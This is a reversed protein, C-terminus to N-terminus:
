RSATSLVRFRHPSQPELAGARRRAGCVCRSLGHLMQARKTDNVRRLRLSGDAEQVPRCAPVCRTLGEKVQDCVESLTTALAVGGM